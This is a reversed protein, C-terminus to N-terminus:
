DVDQSRGILLWGAVNETGSIGGFDLVANNQVANGLTAVGELEVFGTDAVLDMMTSHNGGHSMRVTAVASSTLFLFCRDQHPHLAIGSPDATGSVQDFALVRTLQTTGSKVPGGDIWDADPDARQSFVVNRAMLAGTPVTLQDSPFVSDGGGWRNGGENAVVIWGSARAQLLETKAGYLMRAVTFSNAHQTPIAEVEETVVPRLVTGADAHARDETVDTLDILWDAGAALLRYNATLAAEVM